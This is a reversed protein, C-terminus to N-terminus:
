IAFNNNIVFLALHISSNKIIKMIVNSDKQFNLYVILYSWFLKKKEISKNEVFNVNM